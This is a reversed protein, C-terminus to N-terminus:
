GGYCSTANGYGRKFEVTFEFENKCSKVVFPEGGIHKGINSVLAKHLDSGKRVVRASGMEDISSFISEETRVDRTAFHVYGGLTRKEARPAPNTLFKIQM